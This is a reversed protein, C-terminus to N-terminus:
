RADPIVVTRDPAGFDEEIELRQAVPTALAGDVVEKTASQVIAKAQHARVADASRAAKVPVFAGLATSALEGATPARGQAAANATTKALGVTLKVATKVDKYPGLAAGQVGATTVAVWNVELSQGRATAVAQQAALEQGAGKIAGKAVLVVWAPVRGDEDIRDVPDHDAYGYPNRAATHRPDFGPQEYTVLPDPSAWRGLGPLYHRVGIAVSYGPDVEKGTFRYPVADLESRRWSVWPGGYPRHAERAVVEGDHDLVLAASRLRDRVHYRVVEGRGEGTASSEPGGCAAVAVSALM